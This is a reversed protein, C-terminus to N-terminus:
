PKKSLTWFPFQQSPQLQIGAIGKQAFVYDKKQWLPIYPVETAVM